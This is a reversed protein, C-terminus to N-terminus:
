ATQAAYLTELDYKQAAADYGHCRVVERISRVNRRNEIFILLDVADGILGPMPTESVIGILSELRTLASRASNAHITSFGGPHGTNWLMLLDLAEGFRVEGMGVRTPSHRLVRAVLSRQTAHETARLFLTNPLPCRLERTDEILVCRDEPSLLALEGIVANLLTTKGSGTGGVVLINLRNQLADRIIDRVHAPMIGSDVYEQLAIDRAMHKRLSFIPASVVPPIIASFRSGDLPFECELFYKEMTVYSAVSDAVLQIVSMADARAMEMLLSYGGCRKRWVKGDGNLNLETVDPDNLAHMFTEGLSDVIDELRRANADDLAAADAMIRPSEKRVGEM